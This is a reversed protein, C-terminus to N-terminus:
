EPDGQPCLLRSLCRPHSTILSNVPHRVIRSPNECAIIIKSSEPPLPNCSFERLLNKPPDESVRPIPRSLQHFSGSLIQVPLYQTMTRPPNPNQCPPDQSSERSLVLVQCPATSSNPDCHARTSVCELVGTAVFTRLPHPIFYFSGGVFAGGSAEVHGLAACGGSIESREGCGLIAMDFDRGSDLRHFNAQILEAFSLM